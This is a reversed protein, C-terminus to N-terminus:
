GSGQGPGRAAPTLLLHLYGYGEGQSHDEAVVVLGAQELWGDVQTRSPYFHYSDRSAEGRVV